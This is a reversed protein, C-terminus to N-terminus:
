LCIFICNNNISSLLGFSTLQMCLHILSQLLVLTELVESDLKLPRSSTALDERPPKGASDSSNDSGHSKSEADLHDAGEAKELSGSNKSGEGRYYGFLTLQINM